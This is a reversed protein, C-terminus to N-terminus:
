WNQFNEMVNSRVKKGFLNKLTIKNKTRQLDNYKIQPKALEEPFKVSFKIVFIFREILTILDNLDGYRYTHQTSALQGIPSCESVGFNM